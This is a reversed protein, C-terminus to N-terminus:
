EVDQKRQEQQCRLDADRHMPNGVEAVGGPLVAACALDALLADSVGLSAGSETAVLRPEGKVFKREYKEFRDSEAAVRNREM